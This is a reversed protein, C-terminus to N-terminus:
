QNPHRREIKSSMVQDTQFHTIFVHTIFGYMSIEFKQEHTHSRIPKKKTKM